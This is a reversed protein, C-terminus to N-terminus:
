IIYYTSAAMLISGEVGVQLSNFPGHEGEPPLTFGAQKLDHHHHPPPHHCPDPDPNQQHINPDYPEHQFNQRPHNNIM